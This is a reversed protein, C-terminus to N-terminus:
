REAGVGRHRMAAGLAKLHTVGLGGLEGLRGLIM